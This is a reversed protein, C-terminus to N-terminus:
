DERSSAKVFRRLYNLFALTERTCTLLRHAEARSLERLLGPLDRCQAPVLAVDQDGLHAAIAQGLTKYDDARNSAAFALAALLGNNVILAPFGSLVDGGEQGRFSKEAWVLANRARIQDLNKM